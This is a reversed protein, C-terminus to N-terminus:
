LDFHSFWCLRRQLRKSSSIRRLCVPYATLKGTGRNRCFGCSWHIWTRCVRVDNPRKSNPRTCAASCRREQYAKVASVLSQQTTRRCKTLVRALVEHPREGACMSQLGVRRCFAARNDSARVCSKRAAASVYASRPFCRRQSAQRTTQRAPLCGHLAARRVRLM